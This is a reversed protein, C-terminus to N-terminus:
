RQLQRIKEAGLYSELALPPNEFLGQTAVPAMAAGDAIFITEEAAYLADEPTHTVLFLTTEQAVVIETTIDLMEYRLAPGLAAFPEDLLMLPKKRLFARALAVRQQEGGSLEAPFKHAHEILGVRKLAHHVSDIDATSLKLDPRLGLAVNDKVSMHPFLNHDQFLLSVPRDAPLMDALDQDQFLIRGRTVNHFGAIAALFTSKGCGSPGLIAYTKGLELTFNATLQFSEHQLFLSDCVFVM